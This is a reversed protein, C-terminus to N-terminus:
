CGVKFCAALPGLPAFESLRHDSRPCFFPTAFFHPPLFIQARDSPFGRSSIVASLCGTKSSLPRHSQHNIIPSPLFRPGILAFAGSRGSLFDGIM